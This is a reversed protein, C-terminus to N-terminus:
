LGRSACNELRSPTPPLAADPEGDEGRSSRTPLPGLLPSVLFFAGGRGLGGGDSPPSPSISSSSAVRTNSAFVVEEIRNKRSRPKSRCKPRHLWWLAGASMLGLGLMRPEPVAVVMPQLGSQVLNPPSLPNSCGPPSIGGGSLVSFVNSEARLTPRGNMEPAAVAEEYSGGYASEWIRVQVNYWTGSAPTTRAGGDFYGPQVFGTAAGTQVFLAPDTISVPAYYLAALFTTGAPVRQGTLSNTVIASGGGGVNSFDLVGPCSGQGYCNLGRAALLIVLLVTKSENIRMM